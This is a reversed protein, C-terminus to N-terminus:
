QYFLSLTIPRNNLFNLPSKKTRPIESCVQHSVNTFYNNLEYAMKQPDHISEENVILQSISQITNQSKTNVISKIGSWLNKM